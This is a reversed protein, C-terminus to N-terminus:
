FHYSVGGQVSMMVDAGSINENPLLKSNYFRVKPELYVSVADRLRYSCHLGLNGGVVFRNKTWESSLDETITSSKVRIAGMLGALLYCDFKREPVYGAMCNSLNFLYDVGVTALGYNVTGDPIEVSFPNYDGTVRLTSLPTFHRGVSIGAIYDLRRQLTYRRLQLPISGGAGVSVFNSPHFLERNLSREALHVASARRIELGVNLNFLCDSYKERTIKNESVTKNLSYSILSTHPEVFFALYDTLRFKFQAGGTFGYYGCKVPYAADEKRMHGFEGGALLNIDFPSDIQHGNFFYSLRFMGELRGGVYTSMEYYTRTASSEDLVDIDKKQEHWTDASSFGSLRIGFAPMLWKGASLSFAPGVSSLTGVDRTLGSLQVQGGSAFSIFTNDVLADGDLSKVGSTLPAAQFRYTLGAMAGFSLDYKHWNYQIMRSIGDTQIRVRPELYFDFCPSTHLRLQVGLHFDGVHASNKELFAMQYGIGTVTSLEVLRGPNYGSIFTSANFLYDLEGGWRILRAHNFNRTYSGGFLNVRFTSVRSVNKGLSVGFVPGVAFDTEERSLMKDFGGFASVFMNTLGKKPVFLAKDGPHFRKQLSYDLANFSPKVAITDQQAIVEGFTGCVFLLLIYIRLGKM